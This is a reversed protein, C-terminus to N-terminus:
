EGYITVTASNSEDRGGKNSAVCKYVGEDSEMVNTIKLMSSDANSVVATNNMWEYVVNTGLAGCVLYM